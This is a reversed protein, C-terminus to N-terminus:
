KSAESGFVLIFLGLKTLLEGRSRGDAGRGKEVKVLMQKWSMCYCKELDQRM